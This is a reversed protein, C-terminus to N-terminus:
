SFISKLLLFHNDKPKINILYESETAMLEPNEDPIQIVPSFIFCDCQVYSAYLINNLSSFNFYTSSERNPSLIMLRIM